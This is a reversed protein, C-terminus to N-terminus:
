ITTNTGSIGFASYIKQEMSFAFSGGPDIVITVGQGYPRYPAEPRGKNVMAELKNALARAAARESPTAGSGEAAVRRLALIKRKLNDAQDNTM